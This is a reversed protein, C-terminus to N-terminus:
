KPLWWYSKNKGDNNTLDIKPIATKFRLIVDDTISDLNNQYTFYKNSKHKPIHYIINVQHHDQTFGNEL